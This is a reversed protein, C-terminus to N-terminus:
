SKHPNGVNFEMNNKVFVDTGKAMNGKPNQHPGHSYVVTYGIQPNYSGFVLAVVQEYSIKQENFSISKTNVVITIPEVPKPKNTEFHEIGPMAVNVSMSNDIFEYQHGQRVLYLECEDSLNAIKKIQAGTIFQNETFYRNGDVSFFLKKM